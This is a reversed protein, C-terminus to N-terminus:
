AARKMESQVNAALSQLAACTNSEVRAASIGLLRASEQAPLGVLIRLVYCRRLHPSLLLVPELECPLRRSAQWKGRRRASAALVTDFLQEESEQDPDWSEIARSTVEEAVQLDGTLLHATLFAREITQRTAEM